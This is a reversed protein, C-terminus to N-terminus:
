SLAALAEWFQPWSKSVAGPHAVQPILHDARTRAALAQVVRHDRSSIYPLALLGKEMEALRDTEHGRLQPWRREGEAASIIDFARALAYDESHLPTFSREGALLGPLAAYQRRLTEDERPSWAGDAARAVLAEATLKLKYPAGAPLTEAGRMLLAASAWQSTGGDLTLLRTLPWSVIEPDACIARASLTGSLIFQVEDGRAWSAFRLFRYLTGSEGVELPARRPWAILIRRLAVLDDPLPSVRDLVASSRQGQGALLDLVGHRITWSKDLPILEM